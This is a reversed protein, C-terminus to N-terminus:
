LRAYGLAEIDELKKALHTKGNVLIYLPDSVDVIHKYMHDTILFGKNRKEKILLEKVADIHLPSLHSFPEDLMAFSSPAKIIVYLEILRRNGGSLEKIRAKRFKNFEPFQHIFVEFDIDFDKFIRHLTLHGPSFNFQPLYLLLDPKKYAYYNSINDFRVSKEAQLSGHIIRLLCSKGQGNRGLLGTISGTECKMYVDSLIRREGFHLQVSDVELIHKM